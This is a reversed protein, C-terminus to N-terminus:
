RTRLRPGATSICWYRRWAARRTPHSVGLRAWRHACQVRTADPTDATEPEAGFGLRNLGETISWTFLPLTRQVALGTIMELVRPEEFSEIVLIPVKSDLLLSLDHLDTSM